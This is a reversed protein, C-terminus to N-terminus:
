GQRTIVIHKHHSFLFKNNYTSWTKAPLCIPRAANNFEIPTRLKLLAFDYDNTPCYGRHPCYNKEHVYKPHIKIEEIFKAKTMDIEDGQLQNEHIGVMIRARPPRYTPLPVQPTSPDYDDDYTAVNHAATLIYIPSIISGGGFNGAGGNPKINTHIQVAWPYQNRKTYEGDIIRNWDALHQLFDTFSIIM